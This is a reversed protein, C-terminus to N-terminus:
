RGGPPPARTVLLQYGGFTNPDFSTAIIRYTGDRPATFVIRANLSVGPADGDDDEAVQIGAPDELRLYTDFQNSLMRITYTTGAKMRYSYSKHRGVRRVHDIPDGQTLRDNITRDGGDPGIGGNIAIIVPIAIALLILVLGGLLIGVKAGTPMGEWGGAAKRRRRRRPRDYDDDEDEDEWNRRRRPRDDYDDDDEDYARERRRPRDDEDYARERRRPRDDGDIPERRRPRDDVIQYTRESEAPPFEATPAEPQPFLGKISTAQIWQPLGEKWVLDTALLKGSHALEQLQSSSVPGAQQGKQAYYWVDAM